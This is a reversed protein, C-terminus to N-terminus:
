LPSISFGEWYSTGFIEESGYYSFLDSIKVPLPLALWESEEMGVYSLLSPWNVWNWERQVDLNLELEARDFRSQESSGRIQYICLLQGTPLERWAFGLEFLSEALSADPGKFGQAKLLSISSLNAVHCPNDAHPIVISQHQSTTMTVSFQWANRPIDLAIKCLRSALHFLGCASALPSIPSHV